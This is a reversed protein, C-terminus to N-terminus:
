ETIDPGIKIYKPLISYFLLRMEYLYSLQNMQDPCSINNPLHM